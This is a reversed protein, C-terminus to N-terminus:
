IAPMRRRLPSSTMTIAPLSRPFRPRTCSTRGRSRVTITAPTLMALCWVLAFGAFFWFPPIMSCGMGSPSPFTMTRQGCQPFGVRTACRVSSSELSRTHLRQPSGITTSSGLHGGEQLLAVVCRHALVQALLEAVAVDHLDGLDLLDDQIDAHALGDAVRLRHVRRGSIQRLDGSLPRDHRLRLFRDRVEPQADAHRDAELDRKAALAHPIEELLEDGHRERADAVELAHRVLAEVPAPVVRETELLLEDERLDLVVLDVPQAAHLDRDARRRPRVFLRACQQAAEAHREPGRRLLYFIALFLRMRFCCRVGFNLTRLWLRQW